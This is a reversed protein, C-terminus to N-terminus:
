KEEVALGRKCTEDSASPNHNKQDVFAALKAHVILTMAKSCIRNAVVARTCTMFAKETNPQESRHPPWGGCM